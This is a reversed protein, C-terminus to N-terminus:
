RGKTITMTVEGAPILLWSVASRADVVDDSVATLRDEFSLDYTSGSSLRTEAKYSMRVGRDDEIVEADKTLDERHGVFHGESTRDFTWVKHQREGDAYLLDETLTGRSGSWSAAMKMTFARTTRERYNEVTGKALLSGRFFTELLLPNATAPSPTTLVALTFLFSLCRIM